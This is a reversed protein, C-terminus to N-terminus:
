EDEFSAVDGAQRFGFPAADAQRADPEHELSEEQQRHEGRPFVDLERLRLGADRFAVPAGPRALEEIVDAQGLPAAM